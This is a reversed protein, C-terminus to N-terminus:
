AVAARDIAGAPMAAPATARRRGASLAQWLGVRRRHSADISAPLGRAARQLEHQRTQVIINTIQPNM